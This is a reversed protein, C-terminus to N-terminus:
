GRRFWWVWDLGVLRKDEEEGERKERWSEKEGETMNEEGWGEIEVM